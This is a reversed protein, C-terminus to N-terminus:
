RSPWKGGGATVGPTDATEMGPGSLRKQKNVEKMGYSRPRRVPLFLCVQKSCPCCVLTACCKLRVMVARFLIPCFNGPGESVVVVVPLLVDAPSVWREWTKDNECVEETLDLIESEPLDYNFSRRKM